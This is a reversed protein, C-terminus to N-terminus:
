WGAARSRLATLWAASRRPISATAYASARSASSSTPNGHWRGRGRSPSRRCDDTDVAATIVEEIRHNRPIVLPNVRRMSRAIEVPSAPERTMRAQWTTAWADFLDPASFEARVSDRTPDEALDALGRFTRTFDASGAHMAELLADILAKDGDEARSLGLKARMADLWAANFRHAFGVILTNATEVARASDEDILPLLTEALRALNWQAIAPQNAYAYRGREDISSFVKAPDFADM